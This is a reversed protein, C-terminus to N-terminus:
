PEAADGRIANIAAVERRCRACTALHGIAKQREHAPSSGEILQALTLQDLCDPTPAFSEMAVDARLEAAAERLRAVANRCISCEAVHRATADDRRGSAFPVLSEPEPCNM